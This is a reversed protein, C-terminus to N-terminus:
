TIQGGREQYALRDPLGLTVLRLDVTKQADREAYTVAGQQLTKRVGFRAMTVNLEEAEQGEQVM